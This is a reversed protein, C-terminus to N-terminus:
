RAPQGMAPIVKGAFLTLSAATQEYSMPGLRFQMILGGVGSAQLPALKEAVTAPSGYVLAHEVSAHAPQAAGEPPMPLISAGQEAYIRKRMEVRHEHMEIFAPVAIREAEADTEAVFVNRWVWCEDAKATVTAEDMGLGRLTQRYLEMRSATVANSQVNMMFPNGRRAIELMGHETAAARIVYPHPKTFVAPRLEPLKLDFFRSHHELPKGKWAEFMIAEAEEFRAQAETHDIGYGQYDYINYATGRGLGVILRGKSIHDILAVQEAMRIPHHLAMQAVAFGIRVRSTAVALAAAFAVPDVYAVIGDFHHEALWITDFGLADTLRAEQLTEDIVRGDDAASMSDPFLFNSFRMRRGELPGPLMRRRPKAPLPREPVVVNFSRM